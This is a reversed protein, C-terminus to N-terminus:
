DIRGGALLFFVARRHLFEELRSYFFISPAESVRVAANLFLRVAFDVPAMLSVRFSTGDIASCIFRMASTATFQSATPNPMAILQEVLSFVDEGVEPDDVAEAAGGLDAEEAAAEAVVAGAGDAVPNNSTSAAKGPPQKDKEATGSKCCFM